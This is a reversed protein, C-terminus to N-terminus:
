SPSGASLRPGISESLQGGNVSLAIQEPGSVGPAPVIARTVVRNPEPPASGFKALRFLATGGRLRVAAATLALRASSGEGILVTDGQRIQGKARLRTIPGGHQHQVLLQGHIVDTVTAVIRAAAKRNTRHHTAASIAPATFSLCAALMVLGLLAGLPASLDRLPSASPRHRPEPPQTM